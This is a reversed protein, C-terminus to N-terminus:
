RRNLEKEKDLELLAVIIIVILLVIGVLYFKSFLLGIGFGAILDKIDYIFEKKKIEEKIKNTKM